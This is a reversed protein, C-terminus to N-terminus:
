LELCAQPLFRLAQTDRSYGNRISSILCDHSKLPKNFYRPAPPCTKQVWQAGAPHGDRQSLCHPNLFLFEATQSSVSTSKQLLVEVSEGWALVIKHLSHKQRVLVSVGWDLLWPEKPEQSKYYFLLFQRTRLLQPHKSARCCRPTLHYQVLDMGSESLSVTHLNPLDWYPFTKELNRRDGGMLSFVQIACASTPFPVWHSTDKKWLGQNVGRHGPNLSELISRHSGNPDSNKGSPSCLLLTVGFCNIPYM